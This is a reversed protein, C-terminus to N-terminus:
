KGCLKRLEQFEKRLEYKFLIFHVYHWMSFAATMCIIFRLQNSIM